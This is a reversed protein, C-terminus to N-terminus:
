QVGKRDLWAVREPALRQPVRDLAPELAPGAGLERSQARSTAGGGSQQEAGHRARDGDDCPGRRAPDARDVIEQRRVGEHDRREGVRDGDHRGIERDGRQEPAEGVGHSVLGEIEFGEVLRARGGADPADRMQGIDMDDALAITEADLAPAGPGPSVVAQDLRHIPQRGQM